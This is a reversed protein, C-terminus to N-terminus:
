VTRSLMVKVQGAAVATTDADAAAGTIALGLGLAFRFGQYGIPLVCVGPVGAAAAPVVMIMAPVDTGVTPATAKNYLKVYAAAAGTNTAYFAHLGSTGTLVLTANTSAASNLIFPTAPAVPTGQTTVATVASVTSVTTVTGSSVTVAPTGVVSVPMSKDSRTTGQGDIAIKTEGWATVSLDHARLTPRLIVTGGCNTSVLTGLAPSVRNSAIDFVPRCVMTTTSIHAVEWAGDLGLDAGTTADRLGHLNVYDGPNVGAWTVNGIVDLWNAGEAVRSVVSQVAGTIIGPQDRQAKQYIVSGGYSTAIAAAGWAITIQNAGENVATIQVATASNAFNTQDRVGRLTVWNGVQLGAAAPAVDMTVVTTTSASAHVASVIKAVPRTMSIPKFLRFRPSLAAGSAPKVSTRPNDRLTWLAQSQEPKDMIVSAGLGCELMYRSSARVEYQGWNAGAVYTPASTAVTVRQDGLLTGSVQNDDGGFISVVAASTAVTGTFRLGFGNRAGSMNNYFYAKASGLPTVTTSGSVPTNLSPLAAEDSFGVAITQRNPSIYNICANPYNLRSDILGDINIWDGIFVAQNTGVQPLPTELLMHLVTGATGTNAAGQVAASQYYSLINIPAPVSDAGDLPNGSATPSNAFLSATAFSIGTRVFSGAFELACPQLVAQATNVVASEGVTLPSSSLVTISQGNTGSVSTVFDGGAWDVLAFGGWEASIEALSELDPIAQTMSDATSAAIVEAYTGDGMNKFRKTTSNAGIKDTM